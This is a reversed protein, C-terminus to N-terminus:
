EDDLEIESQAFLVGTANPEDKDMAMHYSREGATLSSAARLVTGKTGPRYGLIRNGVTNRVRDGPKLERSV